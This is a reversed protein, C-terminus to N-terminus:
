VVENFCRVELEHEYVKHLSIPLIQFGYKDDFNDSSHSTKSNADRLLLSTYTLTEEM